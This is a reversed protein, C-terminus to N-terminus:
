RVAENCSGSPSMSPTATMARLKTRSAQAPERPVTANTERERPVTAKTEREPLIRNLEALFAAAAPTTSGGQRHILASRQALPPDTLRLVVSRNPPGSELASLPVLAYGLGVAACRVAEDASAVTVATTRTLGARAYAQEAEFRLGTGLALDISPGAASLMGLSTRSSRALPHSASVVAVIPSITLPRYDLGAPVLERRFTVIGVDFQRRQVGDVIRQSEPDSVNIQVLPHRQHFTALARQIEPVGSNSRRDMALSLTGSLAGRLEVLEATAADAQALLGCAHTLLLRGAKTITIPRTGRDILQTDLERELEAIRASLASQAIQCREAARTFSLEECTAVFLELQRLEM